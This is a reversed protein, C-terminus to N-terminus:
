NNHSLKLWTFITCHAFCCLAIHSLLWIFQQLNMTLYQNNVNAWWTFFTNTALAVPKQNKIIATVICPTPIFISSSSHTTISLHVWLLVHMHELTYKIHCHLYSDCSPSLEKLVDHWACRLLIALNFYKGSYKSPHVFHQIAIPKIFKPM